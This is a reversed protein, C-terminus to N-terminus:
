LIELTLQEILTNFESDDLGTTAIVYDDLGGSQFDELLHLAADQVLEDPDLNFASNEGPDDVLAYEGFYGTDTLHVILADDELVVSKQNIKFQAPRDSLILFTLVIVGATTALAPLAWLLRRQNRQRHELKRRISVVLEAAYGAPAAVKDEGIARDIDQFAIQTERCEPCSNLHNLLQGATAADLDGRVYLPLLEEYQKCPKM